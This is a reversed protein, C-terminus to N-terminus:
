QEIYKISRNDNEWAENRESLAFNYLLRRKESLNWLVDVQEKTVQIKYKKTVLM